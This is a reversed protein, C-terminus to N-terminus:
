FRLAPPVVFLPFVIANQNKWYDMFIKCSIATQRWLDSYSIHLLQWQSAVTLIIETRIKPPEPVLSSFFLTEDHIRWLRSHVNM